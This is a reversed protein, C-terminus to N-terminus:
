GLLDRQHKNLFRVCICQPLFEGPPGRSTASQRMLCLKVWVPVTFHLTKKQSMDGVLAITTRVCQMVKESPVGPLCVFHGHKSVSMEMLSSPTQDIWILFALEVPWCSRQMDLNVLLM